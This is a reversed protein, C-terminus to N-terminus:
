AGVLIDDYGDGNVDGAGAVGEGFFAGAQDGQLTTHASATSADAIGGASGLFVFATGETSEPARPVIAAIVGDEVVLDGTVVRAM